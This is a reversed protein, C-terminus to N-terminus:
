DRSFKPSTRKPQEVDRTLAPAFIGKGSQGQFRLAQQRGHSGYIAQRNLKRVARNFSRAGSVILKYVVDEKDM